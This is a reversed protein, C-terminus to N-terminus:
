KRAVKNAVALLQPPIPQKNQRLFRMLERAHVGEDPALFTYKKGTGDPRAAHRFRRLYEGSNSPYDYSVVCSVNQLEMARAVMDTAVLVATRGLHFTDLARKHEKKSKKGHVGVTPCGLNCLTAALYEVTQKTEVFVVVRGTEDNLIDNLLAFLKDEKEAEECVFVIHEVRHGNHSLTAAGISVDICDKTLEEAFERSERTVCALMVLTQRDPRINDVITRLNKGLGVALMRDAEDLVLLTCRSLNVRHEDMLVTLRGPTAICIDAGEQLQKVQLQKPNGSVLFVTRIKSGETLKRADALVQEAIERTATLVLVTPGGGVQGAPQHQVHVLAPVLYALIKGKSATADFAVLDRGSLAVPWCEAQLATPPPDTNLKEVAKTVSEPLGAEDVHLVPKLAGRGTVIIDNANRYAEVEEPSRRATRMHERYFNKQYTPLRIGKWNPPRLSRGVQSKAAVYASGNRVNFLATHNDGSVPPQLPLGRGRGMPVPEFVVFQGRGFPFVADPPGENPGNVNAGFGGFM